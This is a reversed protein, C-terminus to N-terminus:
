AIVLIGKVPWDRNWSKIVFIVSQIKVNQNPFRMFQIEIDWVFYPAIRQSWFPKLIVAIRYKYSLIYGFYWFIDFNDFKEEQISSQMKDRSYKASWIRKLVKLDGIVM